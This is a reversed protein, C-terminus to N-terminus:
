IGGVDNFIEEIKLRKQKLEVGTAALEFGRSGEIEIIREELDTQEKLILRIAESIPDPLRVHELDTSPEKPDEVIRGPVGVVTAGPPVSNVVVSNAGVRARDGM